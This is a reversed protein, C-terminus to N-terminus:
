GILSQTYMGANDMEWPEFISPKTMGADSKAQGLVNRKFGGYNKRSYSTEANTNGVGKNSELNNALFMGAQAVDNIGSWMNQNGVAYQNGLGALDAEERREQMQMKNYAGDLIAYERNLMQDDMNMAIDQAVQNNQMQVRGMAGIISRAGGQAIIDTVKAMNRALEERQIDAGLTSITLNEAPNTLEQRNYNELANRASSKEKAGQITKFLGTGASLGGLIATTTGVAM